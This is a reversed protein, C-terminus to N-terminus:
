EVLFVVAVCVACACVCVVFWHGSPDEWAWPYAKCKQTIDEIEFPESVGWCVFVDGKSRTVKTCASCHECTRKKKNPM